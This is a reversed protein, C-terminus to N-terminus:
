AVAHHAGIVLQIGLAEDFAPDAIAGVHALQSVIWVLIWLTIGPNILLTIWMEPM